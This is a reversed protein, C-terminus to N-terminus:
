PKIIPILEREGKIKRLSRLPLTVTFTSGKGIASQCVIKGQCVDLIKKLIYLGLGSGKTDIREAMVSRFFKEFLKPQDEKSIGIGEDKVSFEFLDSTKRASVTITKKGPTYKVANMLLNVFVQRTLIPDVKVFMKRAAHRFVIKLDKARSDKSVEEVIDGLFGVAEIQRPNFGIVGADLRSINLLDNVLDIMRDNSKLADNLFETQWGTLGGREMIAQIIWKTGTLPTRLQHSALAVFENKAKDIEAEKSMDRFSWLRGYYKGDDGSLPATYRDFVRGDKFVILTRAVDNKIEYLRKVEHIFEDPNQLQSAVHNLLRKDDKTDMIAKPINWMETFRRNASIVKGHADIILIGDLSNELEMKLFANKFALDATREKVRNELEDHSKQLEQEARKRETIDSISSILCVENELLIFQASFLCPMLTGDKKRFMVEWGDVVGGKRLTSMVRKRDNPNVWLKMSISSSAMVEDRTYGTLSVLTDNVEIFRGDRARTITIALPSTKFAKSFKDESQLLAEESLRRESIDRITGVLRTFKGNEWMPRTSEEVWVLDGNKKRIRFRESKNSETKVTEEFASMIRKVDAPCLFSAFPHDLVEEATYGFQAVNPTVFTVKGQADLSIVMDQINEVVTRFKAESVKIMEEDKKRQTVDTILTAFFGPKPCYAQVDYYRKLESSYNELHAPRGTLAVKGYTQIWYDETRPLVERATKGIIKAAKLGTIVEFAPNVEVFRYDSPRGKKDCIIEHLAFGNQMSSFLLHYRKESEKLNGEAKRSETVDRFYWVRGLYKKDAGLMPASYRDFVKGDKFRIEERSTENKHKYLYQVRVVFEEPNVMKETVHKLIPNDNKSKRLKGPIEFMNYFRHNVSVIVGKEDVILIGDISAEQQTSLIINKFRIEDEAKKRETIDYAVSLICDEGHLRMTRANDIVTILTGDKHRLKTELNSVKGYKKLRDVFNFRSALDGWISLEATTKGISEDRSYGLMRSYGENVELLTGDSLRTIAILSPSAHFAASLKEQSDRLEDEAKKREVLNRVGVIGYTVDNSLETLLRVEDAGFADPQVSYINLAGLTKGNATLPMAISSKYGMKKAKSRWPAFKPDTLIDRCISIKGTRVATGTPGSGRATNAWTIQANRVYEEGPGFIAVPRVSKKKDQEAFGIWAMRYGGEEVLLRCISDTLKQENGARVLMQNCESLVHLARNIRIIQEEKLKRESVDMFFGQTAIIKGDKMQPTSSGEVNVLGGNKQIFIAELGKVSQGRMVNKFKERCHAMCTPHIIDWLKIKKLEADSYGMVRRWERNVFNFTGDPLVSQIMENSNEIFNRNRDESEQLNAKLRNLQFYADGLLSVEMELQSIKQQANKDM